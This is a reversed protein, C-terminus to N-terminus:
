PISIKNLTNYANIAAGIATEEKFDLIKLPLGFEEEVMQQFLPIRRLANGSGVVTKRNKRIEEPLMDKLNRILGRALGRALTGVNMNKLTIGEIAGKLEEDYREGHFYPKIILEDKAKLGENNMLEYVKDIPPAELGVSSIIHTIFEALWKWANGGCMAAAVVATKKFAYPRNDFTTIGKVEILSDSIVSAQSSTGLTLTIESKIDRITGMLSAQNDGIPVMVLVGQPIGFEKAAELSLEGAVEGCPLIKPLMNLDIGTSKIVEYDWTQSKNNFFGWSAAMSTDILLQKQKTLRAVLLDQVATGYCAKVPLTKTHLYWLLTAFGFGDNLKYKTQENISHLLGPVETCRRDQWNILNTVFSFESDVLVIGHMEGTIGIAGIREKLESPLSKILKYCVELMKHPDQEVRTMYSTEVNANHAESLVKVVNDKGSCVVVAIKSTGIDIGLSYKDM